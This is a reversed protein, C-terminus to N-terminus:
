KREGGEKRYYRMNIFVFKTRAEDSWEWGTRNRPYSCLKNTLEKLSSNYGNLLRRFIIHFNTSHIVGKYRIFGKAHRFEIHHGIEHYITREIQSVTRMGSAIIQPPKKMYNYQGYKSEWSKDVVVINVDDMEEAWKKSEIQQVVECVKKWKEEDM